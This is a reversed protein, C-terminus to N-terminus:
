RRGQSPPKKQTPRRAKPESDPTSAQDISPGHFEIEVQQKNKSHGDAVRRALENRSVLEGRRSRHQEDHEHNAQNAPRNRPDYCPTLGGRLSHPKQSEQRKGIDRGGQEQQEEGLAPCPKVHKRKGHHDSRPDMRARRAPLQRAMVCSCYPRPFPAVCRNPSARYGGSLQGACGTQAPAQDGGRAM